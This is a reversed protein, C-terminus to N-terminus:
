GGGGLDGRRGRRAGGGSEAADCDVVGGRVAFRRCADLEAFLEVDTRLEGGFLPELEGGSCDHAVWAALFGHAARHDAGIGAQATPFGVHLGTLRAGVARLLGAPRRDFALQAIPRDADLCPEVRVGCPELLCALGDVGSFVYLVCEVRSGGQQAAPNRGTVRVQGGALAARQLIGGIRQIVAFQRNGVAEGGGGTVIDSGQMLGLRQAIAYGFALRTHKVHFARSGTEGSPIIEEGTGFTGRIIVRGTECVGAREGGGYGAKFAGSGFPEVRHTQRRDARNAYGPAAAAVADGM